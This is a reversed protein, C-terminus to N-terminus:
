SPCENRSPRTGGIRTTCWACFVNRLSKSTFQTDAYTQIRDMGWWGFGDVILFRSQFRDLKDMVEETM